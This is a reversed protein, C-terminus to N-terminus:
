NANTSQSTVKKLASLAHLQVKRDSDRTLQELTTEGLKCRLEGLSTVLIQRLQPLKLQQNQSQWFGVLVKAAQFKLQSKNTRGLITVIEQTVALTSNTLAMELYDIASSLESWGLAKVLDLKLSDPATDSRLVTFLAQTARDCKMRGLSVATKRCVELNVDYLLPSLHSVLDSERCLDPRFGLAIAAQQRVASVKDELATILIPPIRPDHFSSLAEIAIAKLKPEADVAVEILPEITEVTRIYSLSQVALDRHETQTLLNQLADIAYNGIKTLTKGAIAILERDKTSNLLEVLTLVVREQHFSGLIHCIFWRVEGPTIEDLVLAILVPLINEGFLPLLKSIQWKHQFDAEILVALAIEFALQWDKSNLVLMKGQQPSKTQPLQQLYNSVLLWDQQQAAVLGLHLIKKISDSSQNTVAEPKIYTM